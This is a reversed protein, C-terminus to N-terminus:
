NVCFGLKHKHTENKLRIEAQLLEILSELGVNSNSYRVRKKVVAFDGPTLFKLSEAQELNLEMSFFSEFARVVQDVRLYDFHCKFTFRRMSAQDLRAKLNTTCAFPLPHSEMWTLMENVRSVEWSHQASRRDDLMSDAEDLILFAEKDRAEEFAEAIQKESEGVYMSLLDSARKVLVPMQMREALHRAYASKGTGPPGFLCLSFDRADSGALQDTLGGLDTDANILEPLYFESRNQTILPLHGKTAKIIGQTAFEFDELTNGVVGAFRVANSAVAPSIEIQALKNLTDDPVTIAHKELLRRWVNERSKSTPIKIEVALSMRRIISEDLCQPENITWITPVPNNEFLRNTFVKSRASFKAGFLAALGRSEFMDDMEDFLLISHKQYRLLNQSIKFASMREKRDPEDGSDDSEGLSYLSLGLHAALTKCFETKGTGPPGWLLINVGPIQQRVAEALFTALKDRSTGLHDFDQWQLHAQQPEGIIYKRIDELSSLAKQMASLIINPVDVRVNTGDWGQHQSILVGTSFLKGNQRLREAVSQREHSLCASILELIGMHSRSLENLLDNFPDHVRCRVILAFIDAEIADLGLETAIASINSNTFGPKSKTLKASRLKLRGKFEDFLQKHLKRVGTHKKVATHFKEIQELLPETNETMGLLSMNNEFFECLDGLASASLNKRLLNELYGVLMLQEYAEAM